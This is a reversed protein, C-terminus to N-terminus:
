ETTTDTPTEVADEDMEADFDEFSPQTSPDNRLESEDWEVDDDTDPKGDPGNSTISFGEGGADREYRMPNGWADPHAKIMGTGDADNPLSGTKTRHEDIVVYAKHATTQSEFEKQIQDVATKLGLFGMVITFGVVALFISGIAGLIAGAIAFGRPRKVLGFLSILLGIPSIFGCTLIGVLSTIFGALGLGNTPEPQAPTVVYRTQTQPAGYQPPQSM